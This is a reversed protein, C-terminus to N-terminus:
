AAAAFAEEKSQYLTVRTVLGDAFELVQAGRGSIESYLPEAVGIRPDEPEDSM